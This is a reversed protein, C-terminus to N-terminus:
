HPTAHHQSAPHPGGCPRGNAKMVCCAHLYKCSPDRCQNQNYRLCLTQTKGDRTVETGWQSRPATSASGSGKKGKSKSKSKGKGKSLSTLSSTQKVVPRPQLLAEMNNRVETFEHVCDDLTWDRLNYLDSIKQWITQDAHIMEQTNLNRSSTEPDYRTTALRVFKQVYQKLVHLHAGKCLAIATAQLMLIQTLQAIGLQHPLERQPIDDLVLDQLSLTELKAVKKPRASSHNDHQSQSLRVKWPIWRWEKKSLQSHTLALLRPGPFNDADLLESPYSSEFALRLQRMSDSTLKPPFTDNWSQAVAPAEADPKKSENKTDFPAKQLALWVQRLAVIEKRSLDRSLESKFSEMHADLEQLSLALLGFSSADMGDTECILAILDEEAGATRLQAELSQQPDMPCLLVQTVTPPQSKCFFYTVMDM